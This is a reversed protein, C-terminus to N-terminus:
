TAGEPELRYIGARQKDNLLYVLGDSGVRVDRIRGIEGELLREERVVRNGDLELRALLEDKLAGVFLSGRWSPFAAGDYFAMGSPAISPVWVHLPQELGSKEKGEGIPLFTYDIGHTIVPWGYNAGARLINVEDGGRPGHEQEWIAGTWPNLALGQPNRVGFCYIEPRVGAQGVLPNDSPVGGDDTIRTIKGVLDGLDQARDMQGREGLSVYLLGARDFAMRSGFHRGTSGAGGVLIVKEKILRDGHLRARLVHTAAGQPTAGAYSLYLVGNEAFDPHLVIDLLGGQGSAVVDPVGAIPREALRGGQVLRLRGDRETVLMRGDPLFAMAWPHELGGSVEVLRFGSGAARASSGVGPGAGGCNALLGACAGILPFGLVHRRRM